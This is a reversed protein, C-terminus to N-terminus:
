SARRLRTRPASAAQAGLISGSAAPPVFSAPARDALMQELGLSIADVMGRDLGIDRLM